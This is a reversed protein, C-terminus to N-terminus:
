QYAWWKRENIAFVPLYHYVLAASLIAKSQNDLIYAVNNSKVELLAHITGDLNEDRVVLIRMASEPVGLRKLSIYKAIAYDECDGGREMLEYPTQWYDNLGYNDADSIYPMRNFFDNIAAMQQNIPKHRLSSLLKEWQRNRCGEGICKNEALVGARQIEYRPM